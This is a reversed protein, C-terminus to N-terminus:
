LLIFRVAESQGETQGFRLQDQIVDIVNPLEVFFVFVLNLASGFGFLVVGPRGGVGSFGSGGDRWCGPRASFRDVAPPPIAASGGDFATGKAGGERRM